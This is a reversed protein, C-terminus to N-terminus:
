EWAFVRNVRWSERIVIIGHDLGAGDLDTAGSQRGRRYARTVSDEAARVVDM